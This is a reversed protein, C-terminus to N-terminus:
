VSQFDVSNRAENRLEPGKANSSAAVRHAHRKRTAALAKHLKRARPKHTSLARGQGGTREAEELETMGRAPSRSRSHRGFDLTRECSNQWAAKEISRTSCFGTSSVADRAQGSPKRQGAVLLFKLGLKEFKERPL